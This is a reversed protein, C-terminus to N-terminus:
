LNGCNIQEHPPTHAWRGNGSKDLPVQIFRFWETHCLFSSSNVKETIKVTLFCQSSTLAAWLPNLTMSFSHQFLTKSSTNVSSSRSLFLRVRLDVGKGVRGESSHVVVQKRLGFSSFATFPPPFTLLNMIQEPFDLFKSEACSDLLQGRPTSSSRTPDQSAM